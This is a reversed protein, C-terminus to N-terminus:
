SPCGRLLQEPNDVLVRKRLTSDVDALQEHPAPLGMVFPWDSGFLVHDEGHVSAALRLAAADHTICDVYFRSLGQRVKNKEISLGSRGTSRGRELRGAVAATVGGGHALCVTLDTHREIMGSMVLHAAALATEAPGGLLNHLHYPDLRTDCGRHPHLFLFAKRASLAAWLPEYRQDSFTTPPQASGAAMAFRAPGSNTSVSEAAVEPHQVPLHFLPALRGPAQKAVAILATNVAETWRRAARTTLSPRYLTPPISIWAHEIRQADMWRLLASTDYLEPTALEAGDVLLWGSTTWEVGEITSHLDRRFPVVHAHVDLRIRDREPAAPM